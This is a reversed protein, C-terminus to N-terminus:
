VPNLLPQSRLIRLGEEKINQAANMDRDHQQGCEPCVWVRTSLSLLTQKKKCGNCLKSSAFFRDVLVVRKNAWDAKYSVFTKFQSWSVDAISQSLKKNKIMGKVYLDELVIVQNENVLKRSQKHLFDKRKNAIHLHLKSIRNQMKKYNCSHLKKKKLKRQLKALKVLHQRLHKPNDIKVGNSDILFHTLGLDVGMVDEERLYSLEIPEERKVVEEIKLSVHYQGSSHYSVTAQKIKGSFGENEFMKRHKKSLLVNVKGVKPLQITHDEVNLKINGNTEKTTYSQQAQRKSKFKPFKNQGKFFRTFADEVQEIACELVFKDPEKLWGFESHSKLIIFSKKFEAGTLNEGTQKYVEMRESLYFNRTFRACGFYRLIKEEQEKNPRVRLRLGYHRLKLGQEALEEDKKKTAKRVM